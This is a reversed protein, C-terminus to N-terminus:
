KLPSLMLMTRDATPKLQLELGAETRRADVMQFGETAFHLGALWWGNEIMRTEGEGMNHVSVITTGPDELHVFRKRCVAAERRSVQARLWVDNGQRTRWRAGAVPIRGAEPRISERAEIHLDDEWWGTIVRGGRSHELPRECDAGPAPLPDAADIKLKALAPFAFLTSHLPDTLEKPMLPKSGIGLWSMWTGLWPYASDPSQNSTTVGGFIEPLQPHAFSAIDGLLSQVLGSVSGHLRSSRRWLGLAWLERAFARADGFRREVLEHYGTMAVETALREGRWADGFELELWADIMAASTSEPVGLETGRIALRVAETVRASRKDGLLSGYDKLMLGLLSGTIERSDPDMIDPRSSGPQRIMPFAGRQPDRRHTNQLPLVTDVLLRALGLESKRREDAAARALLLAAFALTEPIARFRPDESSRLLCHVDDYRTLAHRIAQDVVAQQHEKRQQESLM